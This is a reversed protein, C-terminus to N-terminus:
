RKDDHSVATEEIVETESHQEAIEEKLEELLGLRRAREEWKKRALVQMDVIHDSEDVIELGLLTEIVDEMTVLGATGGFEDIVLAIHERKETFHNFLEPIPFNEKVAIMDRKIASLLTNDENNVLRLLLDNKLFYGTIHDPSTEFIPIRSFRLNSYKEHFERATMKESAAVMVTRPTMVDRALVSEFLMLNRMITSEGKDLVGQKAGLHAMASFDERSFVSANKDKKLSRTIIQSIYVFPALVVMILQLSKVTFGALEQWYSAGITKPIIESLLLIALTMAVPVVTTSVISTGWIIAAQAGVGIAGVTHAITNLTLIASLPQDINAKYVELTHGIADGEQVKKETFSPTISLLVAEWISCLFSFIISLLFFVILLTYM